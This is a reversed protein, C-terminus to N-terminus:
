FFIQAQCDDALGRRYHRRSNMASKQDYTQQPSFNNQALSQFLQVKVKNRTILFNFSQYQLMIKKKTEIINLEGFIFVFFHKGYYFTKKHM